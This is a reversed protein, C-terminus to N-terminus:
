TPLYDNTYKLYKELEQTASSSEHSIHLILDELFGTFFVELGSIVSFFGAFLLPRRGISHGHLQVSLLYLLIAIGIMILLGGITGFFHLPRKAYRMLFLVTFMDPLDKWVKSFSYKSYGFRRKDHEVVVETVKFGNEYCLLPIFRHMGGYLRLSKAAERSYVKLGCNYDHLNIGWVRRALSNFIRSAFLMKKADKRDKRWGSVIDYGEHIKTLLKGIEGPRDQLDADLTVVYEGKAVQFGLTLAESKGRNRRFSFIRMFSNRESIEKLINLTDDTSGDDVFIIEYSKTLKKIAGILVTFFPELSEQENYAPVVISIMLCIIGNIPKHM